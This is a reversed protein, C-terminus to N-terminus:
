QERIQTPFIGGINGYVDVAFRLKLGISLVAWWWREGGRWGVGALGICGCTCRVGACFRFGLRGRRL